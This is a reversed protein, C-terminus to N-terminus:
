MNSFFMQYSTNQKRIGYNLDVWMFSSFCISEVLWRPISIKSSLLLLLRESISNLAAGLRRPHKIFISCDLLWARWAIAATTIWCMHLSYVTPIALWVALDSCVSFLLSLLLLMVKLYLPCDIHIYQAIYSNLLIWPKRQMRSQM